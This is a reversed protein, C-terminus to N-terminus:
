FTAFALIFAAQIVVDDYNLDSLTNIMLLLYPRTLPRRPNREPQNHDRKIRQLTRELGPDTFATCELRFDLQYSKIGCLYRKM